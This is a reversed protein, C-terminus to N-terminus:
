VQLHNGSEIDVTNEPSPVEELPTFSMSLSEMGTGSELPIDESLGEMGTGSELPIDESLSEIGTGSETPTGESLIEM